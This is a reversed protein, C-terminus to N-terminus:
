FSPIFKKGAKCADIYRQLEGRIKNPTKQMGNKERPIWEPHDWSYESSVSDDDNPRAFAASAAAPPVGASPANSHFGGGLAPPMHNGLQFGHHPPMTAMRQVTAMSPAYTGYIGYPHISIPNGNANTWGPLHSDPNSYASPFNNFPNM